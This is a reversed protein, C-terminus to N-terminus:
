TNLELDQKYRDSRLRCIEDKLKGIEEEAAEQLAKIFDNQERQLNDRARLSAELHKNEDELTSVSRLLNENRGESFELKDELSKNQVGLKYMEEVLREVDGKIDREIEENERQRKLQAERTAREEERLGDEIARRLADFTESQVAADALTVGGGETPSCQVAADKPRKARELEQRMREQLRLGDLEVELEEKRAESSKSQKELEAARAVEQQIDQELKLSTKELHAVHGKADSLEFEVLEKERQRILLQESASALAKSMRQLASSQEERVSDQSNLRIQAEAIQQLLHNTEAVKEEYHRKLTKESSSAVKRTSVLERRKEDLLRKLDKCSQRLIQEEKRNAALKDKMLRYSQLGEKQQQISAKLSNELFNNRTKERAQHVVIENKHAVESDLDRELEAVRSELSKVRSRLHATSSSGLHELLLLDNEAEGANTVGGFLLLSGGLSACSHLCRGGEFLAGMPHSQLTGVNLVYIDQLVRSGDFGGCVVVNDKDVQVVTHQRRPGPVEGEFVVKSWRMTQLNLTHCDNVNESGNFGGFVLMESSNIIVSCHDRRPCPAEGTADLETWSNDKHDFSWLDNMLGGNKKSYGGFLIFKVSNGAKSVHRCVTHHSRRLPSELHSVLRRCHIEPFDENSWRVQYVDGLEKTGDFGGFVIVSSSDLECMCHDSRPCPGDISTDAEFDVDAQFRLEGGEGLHVNVSVITFVNQRTDLDHGGFILYKGSTQAIGSKGVFVAAHSARRILCGKNFRHWQHSDVLSSVKANRGFSTETLRAAQAQARRSAKIPSAARPAVVEALGEEFTELKRILLNRSCSLVQIRWRSFLKLKIRWRGQRCKEQAVLKSFAMRERLERWVAFCSKTLNGRVGLTFSHVRARQGCKRLWAGFSSALIRKEARSMVRLVVRERWESRAALSRWLALARGQTRAVMKVRFRAMKRGLSRERKATESWVLMAISLARRTRFCDSKHELLEAIRSAAVQASWGRLVKVCRQRALFKNWKGERAKNERSRTAWSLFARSLALRGHKATLQDVRARLAKKRAAWSRWWELARGAHLGSYFPAHEERFNKLKAELVREGSVVARWGEVARAKVRAERWQQVRKNRRVAERWHSVSGKLVSQRRRGLVFSAIHLRRKNERTVVRWFRFCPTVVGLNRKIRNLEVLYNAAKRKVHAYKLPLRYSLERQEHKLDLNEKEYRILDEHSLALKRTLEKVRSDLFVITRNKEVELKVKAPLLRPGPTAQAVGGGGGGGGQVGVM